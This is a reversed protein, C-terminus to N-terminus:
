FLVLVDVVADLRELAFDAQFGVCLERVETAVLSHMGVAPLLYLAGPASLREGGEDGEVFVPTKAVNVIDLGPDGSNEM